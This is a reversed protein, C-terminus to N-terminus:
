QKDLFSGLTIFQEKHGEHFVTTTLFIIQHTLLHLFPHPYSPAFVVVVIVAIALGCKSPKEAFTKPYFRELIFALINLCEDSILM